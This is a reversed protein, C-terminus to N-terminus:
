TYATASASEIREQNQQTAEDAVPAHPVGDGPSEDGDAGANEGDSDQGRAM